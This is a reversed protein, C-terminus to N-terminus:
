IQKVEGLAAVLRGAPDRCGVGGHDAGPATAGPQRCRRSGLQLGSLNSKTETDAPETAGVKELEGGVSDLRAGHEPVLQDALHLRDGVVDRAEGRPVPDNDGVM